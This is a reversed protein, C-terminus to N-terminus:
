GVWPVCYRCLGYGGVFVDHHRCREFEEGTAPLVWRLDGSAPTCPRPRYAAVARDLVDLYARPALPDYSLVAYRYGTRALAIVRRVHRRQETWVGCQWGLDALDAPSAPPHVARLQDAWFVALRRQWPTRALDCAAPTLVDYVLSLEAVSLPLVGAADAIPYTGIAAPHALLPTSM